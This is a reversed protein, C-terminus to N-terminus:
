LNPGYFSLFSLSPRILDFIFIKHKEKEYNLVSTKVLVLSGPRKAWM